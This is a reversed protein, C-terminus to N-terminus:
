LVNGTHILLVGAIYIPPQHRKITRQTIRVLAFVCRRQSKSIHFYRASRHTHALLYGASRVALHPSINPRIRHGIEDLLTAPPCFQLGATWPTTSAQTRVQLNGKWKRTATLMTTVSFPSQVVFNCDCRHNGRHDGHRNNLM